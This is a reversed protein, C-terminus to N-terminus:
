RHDEKHHIYRVTRKKVPNDCSLLLQRCYMFFLVAFMLLLPKFRYLSLLILRSVDSVHSCRQQIMILMQGTDMKEAPLCPLSIEGQKILITGQKGTSGFQRCIEPPSIITIILSLILISILVTEKQSLSRFMMIRWNNNM